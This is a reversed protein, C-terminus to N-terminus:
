LRKRARPQAPTTAVEDAIAHLEAALVQRRYTALAIRGNPLDPAFPQREQPIIGEFRDDMLDAGAAHLRPLIVNLYHEETHEQEVGHGHIANEWHAVKWSGDSSDANLVEPTIRALLADLCESNALVCRNGLLQEPNDLFPITHLVVDLRQTMFGTALSFAMAATDRNILPVIEDLPVGGFRLTQRMLWKEADNWTRVTQPPVLSFTEDDERVHGLESVFQEVLKPKRQEVMVGARQILGNLLDSRHKQLPNSPITWVKPTLPRAILNNM